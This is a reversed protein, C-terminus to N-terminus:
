VITAKKQAEPNGILLGVGSSENPLLHLVAIVALQYPPKKNDSLKYLLFM